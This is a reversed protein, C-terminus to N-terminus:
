CNMIILFLNFLTAEQVFTHNTQVFGVKVEIPDGDRFEVPAVGPVYFGQEVRFLGFLQLVAFTIYNRIRM